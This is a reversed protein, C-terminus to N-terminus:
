AQLMQGYLAIKEAINKFTARVGEHSISEEDAMAALGHGERAM